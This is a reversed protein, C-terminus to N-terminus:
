RAEENLWRQVCIGCRDEDEVCNDWCPPTEGMVIWIPCGTKQITMMLDYEDRKTIYRERNTM